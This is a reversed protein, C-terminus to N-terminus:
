GLWASRKWCGAQVLAAPWFPLDQDEPFATDILPGAPDGGPSRARECLRAQGLVRLSGALPSEGRPQPWHPWPRTHPCLPPGLDGTRLPRLVM